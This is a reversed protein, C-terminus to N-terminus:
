LSTKLKENEGKNEDYHKQLKLKEPKTYYCNVEDNEEEDDVSSCDQHNIEKISSTFVEKYRGCKGKQLTEIKDEFFLLTCAYEIKSPLNFTYDVDEPAAYIADVSLALEEVVYAETGRFLPAIINAGVLLVVAVLVLIGIMLVLKTSVGKKMAM